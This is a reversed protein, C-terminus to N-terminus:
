QWSARGKEKRDIFRRLPEDKPKFRLAQKWSKLALDLQGLRELLTGKMEYLRPDTQYQRIMDEVGLLAAEYRGRKYLSKVQDLGALYSSEGRPIGDEEPVLSLSQELERRRVEDEPLGQPFTKTIEHDVSSPARLKRNEEYPIDAESSGVVDEPSGVSAPGRGGAAGGDRFAPSMPLQFDSMAAQSGPLEVEVSRDGKKTRLVINQQPEKDAGYYDDFPRSIPKPKGGTPDVAFIQRMTACGSLALVTWAFTAAAGATWALQLVRTGIGHLARTRM